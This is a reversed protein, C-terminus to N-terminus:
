VGFADAVEEFGEVTLDPDPYWTDWVTGERQIWAGQMGAAMAGRVDFTPSAVHVLNEIPTGTRAAAHRYIPADPKYHEIEDVSIQDTILDDLGANTVMSDLMEPTGNSVVYVDYEAALRELGPRVDPFADLDHYVEMIEDIEEDTTEVGRSALAKELAAAILDDFPRYDGVDNAIMIYSLYLSRWEALMPELDDVYPAVAKEAASPDVVTGYSDITVTEVRDPDFSM